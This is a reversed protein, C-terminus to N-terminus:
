YKRRGKKRQRLARIVFILVIIAVVAALVVVGTDIATWKYIMYEQVDATDDVTIKFPRERNGGLIIQYDGSDIGSVGHEMSTTNWNDVSSGKYDLLVANMDSIQNRLLMDGVGIKIRILRNTISLSMNSNKDILGDKDVMFRYESTDKVYNNDSSIQKITYSTDHSLDTFEVTGNEGTEKKSILAGDSSYLGIEANEVYVSSYLEDSVTVKVSTKECTLEHSKKDEMRNKIEIDIDGTNKAYYQPTNKQKLIYKGLYLEKSEAKGSSDTVITDAVAGEEYRTTGDKTIIDEAAIVDYEAGEIGSSDKKDVLRVQVTNKSPSMYVSVIYPDTWEYPEDVTFETYDTIDYGPVPTLDHLEYTGLPIKEPLYFMGTKDTEFKKYEIKLPYYVSLVQLADSRYLEFNIGQLKVTRNTEEDILQVLVAARDYGTDDPIEEVVPEAETEGEGGGGGGSVEIYDYDESEWENDDSETEDEYDIGYGDLENYESYEEYETGSEDDGLREEPVKTLFLILLMVILLILLLLGVMGDALSEWYGVEDINRKKKKM